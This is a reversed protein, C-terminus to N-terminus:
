VRSQDYLDTQFITAQRLSKVIFFLFPPLTYFM